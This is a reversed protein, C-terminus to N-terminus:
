IEEKVIQPFKAILAKAAAMPSIMIYDIRGGSDEDPESVVEGANAFLLALEEETVRPLSSLAAEYGDRFNNYRQQVWPWEYFFGDDTRKFDWNVGGSEFAKRIESENMNTVRVDVPKGSVYDAIEQAGQIIKSTM